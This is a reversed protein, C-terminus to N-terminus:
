RGEDDGCGGRGGCVGSLLLTRVALSQNVLRVPASRYVTSIPWVHKPFDAVIPVEPGFDEIYYQLLPGADYLRVKIPDAGAVYAWVVDGCKWGQDYYYPDMALWPPTAADYMLSGSSGIRGDCYLPEGVYPGAYWTGVGMVILILTEM